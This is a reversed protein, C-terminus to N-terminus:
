AAGRRWRWPAPTTIRTISTSSWAMRLFAPSLANGPQAFLARGDGLGYEVRGGDISVGFSMDSREIPVDLERFLRSLHPYTAHNFVIFGTDVPQDGRRGAVVTRAHGGLRPEAEYLTVRARGELALAASLGSIGGGVVAVRPKESRADFPM